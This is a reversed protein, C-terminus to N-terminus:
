LVKAYFVAGGLPTESGVHTFGYSEYLTMARRNNQHVELTVKCCKLARAKEEVARLLERGIGKGRHGDLVSLDHINILPRAYFTSFGIFCTALGIARAEGGDPDYALLLVKAPHARLGEILRGLVDDPLPADTGMEEAGYAATLALVDDRHDARDLDAEVIRTRPTM